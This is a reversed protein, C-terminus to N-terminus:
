NLVSKNQPNWRKLLEEFLAKKANISPDDKMLSTAKELSFRVTENDCVTTDIKDISPLLDQEQAQQDVAEDMGDLLINELLSFFDVISFQVDEIEPLTETRDIANLEDQLGAALAKAIIPKLDDAHNEALWRFLCLLEYSLVFQGNSENSFGDNNIM